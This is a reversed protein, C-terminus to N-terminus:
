GRTLQSVRQASSQERSAPGRRRRRISDAAASAGGRITPLAARIAPRAAALTADRATRLEGVAIRMPRFELIPWGRAVAVSYLKPDPCVAHPFGVAELMPLDNISDGYASCRALDLGERRAYERIAIEKAPGRMLGGILRGTYRGDIIEAVTGIAGTLGLRRAVISGLEVPTTSVFLVQDKAALEREIFEKAGPWIKDEIHKDYIVEGLALMTGVPQGKIFSLAAEQAADIHGEDEVGRVLFALQSWAVKALDTVRFFRQITLGLAFYFLSSGRLTTGDLDVFAATREQAPLLMLPADHAPQGGPRPGSGGVIDTGEFDAEPSM